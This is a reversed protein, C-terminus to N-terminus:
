DLVVNMHMSSERFIAETTPEKNYGPLRSLMRIMAEIGATSGTVSFLIIWLFLLHGSSTLLALERFTSYLRCYIALMSNLNSMPTSGEYMM